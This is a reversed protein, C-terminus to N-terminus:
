PVIKLSRNGKLRYVGFDRKDLTFITRLHEREALHCLAADALQAREYTRMFKAIWPVADDNLQQLMVVGNEVGEFLRAIAVPSRRLLYTAETLVPWCTWLPGRIRAHTEVCIAHAADRESVLAVLPGTDILIAHDRM